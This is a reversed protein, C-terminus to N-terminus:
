FLVSVNRYSHIAAYNDCYQKETIHLEEKIEGKTYGAIILRLVEKQLFSLRNLYAIMKTSYNDEKEGFAEKYVDFKDAIIDGITCEENDNLPADISIDPIIKAKSTENGNEDFIKIYIKACRKNRRMKTMESCFKKYLCSYLFGDFNQSEDYNNLVEVVFIENALSYFDTKEIDQFRLKQLIKDVMKHLKKAENEYYSTVIQEIHSNLIQSM